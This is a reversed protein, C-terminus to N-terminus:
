GFVVVVRVCSFLFQDELLCFAYHRTSFSQATGQAKHVYQNFSHDEATRAVLSDTIHGTDTETLDHFNMSATDNRRLLRSRQTPMDVVLSTNMRLALSSVLLPSALAFPMMNVLLGTLPLTAFVRLILTISQISRM